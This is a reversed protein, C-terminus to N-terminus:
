LGTHRRADKGFGMIFRATPEGLDRTLVYSEEECKVVNLGELGRLEMRIYFERAGVFDM